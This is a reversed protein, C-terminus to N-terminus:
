EHVVVCRLSVTHTDADGVPDARVVAFAASRAPRGVQWCALHMPAEAEAARLQDEYDMRGVVGLVAVLVILILTLELKSM